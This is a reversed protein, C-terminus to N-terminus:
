RMTGTKSLPLSTTCASRISARNSVCRAPSAPSPVAVTTILPMIRSRRPLSGSRMPRVWRGEPVERSKGAVTWSPATGDADPQRRKVAAIGSAATVSARGSVSAAVTAYLRCRTPGSPRLVGM